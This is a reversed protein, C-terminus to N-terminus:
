DHRLSLESPLPIGLLYAIAERPRQMINLSLQLLCVANGTLEAAKQM